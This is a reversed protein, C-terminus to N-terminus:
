LGFLQNRMEQSGKSNSAHQSSSPAIYEFRLSLTSVQYGSRPTRWYSHSSVTSIFPGSFAHQQSSISQQHDHVKAHQSPLRQISDFDLLPVAISALILNFGFWTGPPGSVTCHCEPPLQCPVSQGDARVLYWCTIKKAVHALSSLFEHGAFNPFCVAPGQTM